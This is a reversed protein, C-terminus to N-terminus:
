GGNTGAIEAEAADAGAEDSKATRGASSGADATPEAKKPEEKKPEEKKPEEKKPTEAAPKGPEGHGFRGHWPGGFRSRMARFHAELEEKSLTGNKDADSKSLGAWMVEAVEDKTLQGDKNKDFRELMKDVSPPGFPRGGGWGSHAQPGHTAAPRKEGGKAHAAMREAMAKKVHAAAEEKSISGDADSDIAAFKKLM